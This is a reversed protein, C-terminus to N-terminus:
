AAATAAEGERSARSAAQPNVQLLIQSFDEVRDDVLCGVVPEHDQQAPSLWKRGDPASPFPAHDSRRVEYVRTTAYCRWSFAAGEHEYAGTYAQFASM